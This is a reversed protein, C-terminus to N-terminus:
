APAARIAGRRSPSHGISKSGTRRARSCNAKVIVNWMMKGLKVIPSDANMAVSSSRQIIVPRSCRCRSARNQVLIKATEKAMPTTDPM